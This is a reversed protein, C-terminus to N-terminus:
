PEGVGIVLYSFDLGVNWSFQRALGYNCQLSTFDSLNEIVVDYM